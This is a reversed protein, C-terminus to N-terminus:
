RARNRHRRRRRRHQRQRHLQDACRAAPAPTTTPQGPRRWLRAHNGSVTCNTLTLLSNVYGRLTASEGSYVGGGQVASNGSIICNTLTMQGPLGQYFSTNFLGGGAWGAITGSLRAVPDLTDVGGFNSVGGGAYGIRSGTASNGSVTCNTLTAPATLRSWAVATRAPPSQRQRHGTM